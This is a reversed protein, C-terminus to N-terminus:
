AEHDTQEDVMEHAQGGPEVPTNGVIQEGNDQKARKKRGRAQATDGNDQKAIKTVVFESDDQLASLQEKSLDLEYTGSKEFSLGARNRRVGTFSKKLEVKYM